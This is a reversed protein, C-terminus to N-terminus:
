RFRMHESGLAALHPDIGALTSVQTVLESAAVAVPPVYFLVLFVILYGTMGIRAAASRVSWPLWPRLIGFGDLPPIPVLNLVVAFVEIYGLFALAEFFGANTSNIWRADFAVTIIGGIVAAFLANATPGALSVLSDWARSRLAAPNVYVAGGPLGIGGLLLAVVPFVISMVVNTYRLPNLTLYGSAAVDRDGGLYAVVAHFFEHVCVSVVWGLVVFAITLIAAAEPLIGFFLLAGVALMGAVLGMFLPSVALVPRLAPWPRRRLTRDPARVAAREAPAGAAQTAASTQLHRRLDYLTLGASQLFGSTPRADSYLLALLLHIADVQYHGHVTAERNANVVLQRLSPTSAAGDQPVTAALAGTDVGLTHMAEGALTGPSQLVARLVDVSTADPENRRAADAVARELVDRATRTLRIDAAARDVAATTEPM